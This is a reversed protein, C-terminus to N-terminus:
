GNLLYQHATVDRFICAHLLFKITEITVSDYKSSGLGSKVPYLACGSTFDPFQRTITTTYIIKLMKLSKVLWNPFLNENGTIIFPAKGL